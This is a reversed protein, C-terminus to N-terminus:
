FILASLNKGIIYPLLENRTRDPGLAVAVTGLGKVSNLRFFINIM